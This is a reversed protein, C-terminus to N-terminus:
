RNIAQGVAVRTPEDVAGTGGILFGQQAGPAISQLYAAVSPPVANPQV